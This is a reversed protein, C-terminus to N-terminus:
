PAMCFYPRSMTGVLVARCGGYARLRNIADIKDNHNTAISYMLDCPCEPRFRLPWNITIDIGLFSRITSTGGSIHVNGFQTTIVEHLIPNLTYFFTYILVVPHVLSLFLPSLLDINLRFCTCFFPTLRRAQIPKM